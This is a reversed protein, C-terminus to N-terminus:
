PSEPEIYVTKARVAKSWQRVADAIFEPQNDSRIYVPIGRIVFLNTLADILDTSNIRLKM